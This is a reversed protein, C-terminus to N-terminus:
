EKMSKLPFFHSVSPRQSASADGEGYQKNVGATDSVRIM